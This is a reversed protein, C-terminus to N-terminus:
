MREIKLGLTEILVQGGQKNTLKTDVGELVVAAAKM